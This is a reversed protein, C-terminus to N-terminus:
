CGSKCYSYSINGCFRVNMEWQVGGRKGMLFLDPYRKELSFLDLFTVRHEAIRPRVM